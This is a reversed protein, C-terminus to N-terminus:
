FTAPLVSSLNACGSAARRGRDGASPLDLEGIRQRLAVPEAPGVEVQLRVPHGALRDAIWKEFREAGAIAPPCIVTLLTDTAQAIQAAAELLRASAPGRDRLLM